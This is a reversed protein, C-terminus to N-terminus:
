CSKENQSEFSEYTINYFNKIKNMLVDDIM